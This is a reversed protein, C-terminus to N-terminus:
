DQPNMGAAEVPEDNGPFVVQPKGGVGGPELIRGGVLVAGPQHRPLRPQQNARLNGRRELWAASPEAIAPPKEIGPQFPFRAAPPGGM